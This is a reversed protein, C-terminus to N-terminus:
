DSNTKKPVFFLDKNGTQSIIIDEFNDRLEKFKRNSLFSLENEDYSEAAQMIEEAKLNVDIQSHEPLSIKGYFLNYYLVAGTVAFLVILVVAYIIRKKSSTKKLRLM